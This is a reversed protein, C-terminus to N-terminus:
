LRRRSSAHAIARLGFTAGAVVLLFGAALAALGVNGAGAALALTEPGFLAALFEQGGGVLADRLRSGAIGAAFVPLDTRTGVWLMAATLVSAVTAALVLAAARAPRSQPIWRLVSDRAAVHWPVFVAVQAM